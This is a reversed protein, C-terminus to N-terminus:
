KIKRREFKRRKFKRKEFRRPTFGRFTNNSRDDEEFDYEAWGGLLFPRQWNARDEELAAKVNQMKRLLRDTPANTSAEIIGAVAELGPNDLSIESMEDMDYDLTALAGRIQRYKKDIPPSVRLLESATDRLKPNDKQLEKNAKILWNKFVAYAKGRIGMGVLIGDLTANAVELEEGDLTNGDEFLVKFVGQQLAHFLAGQLVTGYVIQGVKKLASNEGKILGEYRGNILDRAPDDVYRRGYALQVSSFPLILRGAVSKQEQSVRDMRSTQQTADSMERWDELAREEAEKESLGKKKYTNLRNRYFSAGGFATAHSDAYKTLVFGKKLAWDIIAAGKNKSRSLAEVIESEQINYRLGDRRNRSWQDNMLKVYDKAFQPFNAFARAAKFPNNDTVNIYNPISVQQLIASRVNLFMIGSISGNMFDLIDAEWKNGRGWSPRNTGTKMREIADEMARRWTPGLAAEMKNLNEPSFIINANDIFEKMHRKRSVNEGGTLMDQTIGESVWFEKPAPYGDQKNIEILNEAFSKLKPNNNVHDVLKKVDSKSIDKPLINQKNWNYVRVAHENTWKSGKEFPKKLPNKRFMNLLGAEYEADKLQRKLAYYDAMKVRRETQYALDGRSFPKSLNEKFWERNELGKKGKGLLANTLSYFDGARNPMYISWNKKGKGTIEAKAKSYTKEKGIGTAYEIISNIDKNLNKTKSFKAQQVDSKVDIINLAKQVAKVNKYADDAFYFDNYGEAAKGIIWRAKAQPSGDELGKINEIPINLGQSKLFMHIPAASLQPRATLVFIDKNTFKGERKQALEFLPGKKGGIVKNFDSFDFIAGDKELRSSQKAFQTANLVGETGDPMEYRVESKTRALTDDFDFVSIGKKPANPDRAISIAKDLKETFRVIDNLSKQETFRLEKPLNKNSKKAISFKAPALKNVYENIIKNAVKSSMQGIEQLYILEAQKSVVDPRNQFKKDVEVNYRKADTVGERTIKNSNLYFYENYSRLIGPDPMNSWDSTEKAKDWAKRYFPHLMHQAIYLPAKEGTFRNESYTGDIIKESSKPGKQKGEIAIQVYSEALHRQADKKSQGKLSFTEFMLEIFSGHQLMHEERVFKMDIGLEVGMMQAMKKTAANNANQNYLLIRTAIPDINFAKEFKEILKINGNIHQERTAFNRDLDYKSQGRLAVAIDPNEKKIKNISKGSKQEAKRVFNNEIIEGSKIMKLTVPDTTGPSVIINKRKPRHERYGATVSSHNMVLSIEYDNEIFKDFSEGLVQAPKKNKTGKLSGGSIKEISAMRKQREESFQADRKGAAADALEQKSAGQEARQIRYQINALKMMDVKAMGKLIGGIETRTEAGVILNPDGPKTIGIDKGVKKVLEPTVKYFEEKLKKVFPQTAKGKSRGGPTTMVGTPDVFDEMFYDLFRGPLKISRGQVDMSVDLTELGIKSTKPSVNYDPLTKLSLELNRGKAYYQQVARAPEGVLNKEGKMIKAGVGPGFVQDAIEISYEKSVEGFNLNPKINSKISLDKPVGTFDQVKIQLPDPKATAETKATKTDAIIQETEKTIRTQQKRQESEQALQKSAVMKAFRTNAFISEGFGEPGVVTGDARKAEPDFNFVRLRVEDLMKDGQEKNEQRSRIYNNIVGNPDLAQAIKLASKENRIFENFKTKTKINDPILKNIADLPAEKSFPAEGKQTTGKAAESVAKAAEIGLGENKSYSKILNFMQEATETGIELNELGKKRMFPIFNTLPKSLNESFSIIGNSINESLVTLYEEYYDEKNREKGDEAYRYNADIRDQVTKKQEPTLKAMVDDILKIGEQTVKGQENKLVDRLVFHLVEHKGTTINRQNIAVDRNIYLEKTNPNYFGLRESVNIKSEPFAEEYQKQFEEVNKSEILKGEKTSVLIERAVAIDKEYRNKTYDEVIKNIKSFEEGKTLSEYEAELEKLKSKENDSLKEKGKLFNVQDLVKSTKLVHDYVQKREGSKYDTKLNSSNLVEEIAQARAQSYLFSNKFNKDGMIKRGRAGMANLMYGINMSSFKTNEAPTLDEGSLIKEAINAAEAESDVFRNNTKEAEIQKKFQNISLRNELTLKSLELRSKEVQFEKDTIENNKRKDEAEKLKKNFSENINNEANENLTDIEKHDVGLIKASRESEVTRGKFTAIDRRMADFMGTAGGAKRGIGLLGLKAFEALYSEILKEGYYSNPDEETGFILNKFYDTDNVALAFHYVASGTNAGIIQETLLSTTYYKNLKQMPPALYKSKLLRSTVQQAFKNGVGLAFGFPATEKLEEGTQGKAAEVGVFLGAEAVGSVALNLLRGTKKNNKYFKSAKLVKEFKKMKQDIGTAKKAVFLEGVFLTLDVTGYGITRADLLNETIREDAKKQDVFELKSGQIAKYFNEAVDFKSVLGQKGDVKNLLSEYAGMRLSDKETSLPDVNLKVAQNYALYEKLADNYAKAAPHNGPMLSLTAPIEGTESIRQLNALDDELTDDAGFLDRVSGTLKTFGSVQNKFNDVGIKSVYNNVDKAVALLKSYSKSLGISLDELETTEAVLTEAKIKIEKGEPSAKDLSLVEGTVPDYLKDGFDFEELQNKLKEKEAADKTKLYQAQLFQYKRQDDTLFKDGQGLVFDSHQKVGGRTEVDLDYQASSINSVHMNRMKLVDVVDAKDKYLESVKPDDGYSLVIKQSNEPAQNYINDRLLFPSQVMSTGMQIIDDVGSIHGLKARDKTEFLMENNDSEFDISDGSQFFGSIDGPLDILTGEAVKNAKDQQKKTLINKIVPKQLFYQNNEESGLSIAEFLSNQEEISGSSYVLNGVLPLFKEELSINEETNNDEQIGPIVM